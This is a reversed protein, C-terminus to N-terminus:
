TFLLVFLVPQVTAFVLLTPVRVLRRLNRGTIVAIGALTGAPRGSIASTAPTM